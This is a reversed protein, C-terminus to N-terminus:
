SGREILLEAGTVMMPVRWEFDAAAPNAAAGEIYHMYLGELIVIMKYVALVRYFLFHRMSRGSRAEYMAMMEAVDPFGELQTLPPKIPPRDEFGPVVM